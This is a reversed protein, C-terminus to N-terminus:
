THQSNYCGLVQDEGRRQHKLVELSDRLSVSMTTMSASRTLGASQHQGSDPRSVCSSPRRKLIGKPLKGSAPVPVPIRSAPRISSASSNSSTEDVYVEDCGLQPRTEPLSTDQQANNGLRFVQQKTDLTQGIDMERLGQEVAAVPKTETTKGDLRSSGGDITQWHRPGGRSEVDPPRTVYKGPEGIKWRGNPPKNQIVPTSLVGDKVPYMSLSRLDSDSVKSGISIIDTIKADYKVSSSDSAHLPGRDSPHTGYAAEKNTLAVRDAAFGNIDIFRGPDGGKTTQESVFGLVAVEHQGGNAVTEGNQSYPQSGMGGKMPLHNSNKDVPSQLNDDPDVAPKKHINTNPVNTHCNPQVIAINASPSNIGRHPGGTSGAESTVSGGSNSNTDASVGYFATKSQLSGASPPAPGNAHFYVGSSESVGNERRHLMSGASAVHNDTYRATTDNDSRAPLFGGNLTLNAVAPHRDVEASEGSSKASTPHLRWEEPKDVSKFPNNEVARDIRFTQQGGGDVPRGGIGKDPELSDVISTGQQRDDAKATGNLQLRGIMAESFDRLAMQQQTVLSQQHQTLQREFLSRSSKLELQSDSQLDVPVSLPRRVPGRDHNHQISASSSRDHGM